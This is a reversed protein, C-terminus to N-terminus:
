PAESYFIGYFQENDCAARAGHSRGGGFLKDSIGAAACIIQVKDKIADL